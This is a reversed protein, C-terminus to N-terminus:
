SLNDHIPQWRFHKPKHLHKHSTQIKHKQSYMVDNIDHLPLSQKKGHKICQTIPKTDHETSTLESMNQNIMWNHFIIFFSQSMTAKQLILYKM